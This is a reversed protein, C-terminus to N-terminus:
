LIVLKAIHNSIDNENYLVYMCLGRVTGRGKGRERERGGGRERERKRKSGIGIGM